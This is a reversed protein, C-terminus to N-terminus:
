FAGLNNHQGAVVFCAKSFYIFVGSFLVGFDDCVAVKMRRLMHNKQLLKLIDTCKNLFLSVSFL